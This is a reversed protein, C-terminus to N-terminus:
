MLNQVRVPAFVKTEASCNPKLKQGIHPHITVNLSSGNEAKLNDIQDYALALERRLDLITEEQERLIRFQKCM